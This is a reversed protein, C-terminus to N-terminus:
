MEGVRWDSGFHIQSLGPRVDATEDRQRPGHSWRKAPCQRSILDEWVRDTDTECVCGQNVWLWGM